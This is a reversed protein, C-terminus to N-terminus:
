DEFTISFPYTMDAIGGSALNKRKVRKCEDMFSLCQKIKEIYESDLAQNCVPCNFTSIKKANTEDISVTCGCQCKITCKMPEGGERISYLM